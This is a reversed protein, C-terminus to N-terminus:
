GVEYIKDDSSIEEGGVVKVREIVGEKIEVNVMVRSCGVRYMEGIKEIVVLGDCM